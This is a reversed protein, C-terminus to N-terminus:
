GCVKRKVERYAQFLARPNVRCEPKYYERVVDQPVDQFVLVRRRATGTMHEVPYGMAVLYAAHQADTTEFDTCVRGTRGQFFFGGVSPSFDEVPPEVTVVGILSVGRSM